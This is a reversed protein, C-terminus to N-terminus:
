NKYFSYLCGQIYSQDLGMELEQGLALVQELGAELCVLDLLELYELGV